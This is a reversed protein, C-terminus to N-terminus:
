IDQDTMPNGASDFLGSRRELWRLGHGFGAVIWVLLGLVVPALAHSTM